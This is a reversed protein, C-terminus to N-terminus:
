QGRHGHRNDFRYGFTYIWQEYNMQSGRNITGGMQM